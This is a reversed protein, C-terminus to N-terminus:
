KEDQNRGNFHDELDSTIKKDFENSSKRCIQYDESNNKHTGAYLHAPNVCLKINCIHCVILGEPVPGKKMKYAYVHAGIQMSIRYGELDYGIWETFMGYGNDGPKGIWFICEGNNNINDVKSWFKTTNSIRIELDSRQKWKPKGRRKRKRMTPSFIQM